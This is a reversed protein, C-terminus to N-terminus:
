FSTSSQAANPNDLSLGTFSLESGGGQHADNDRTCTFKMCGNALQDLEFRCTLIM